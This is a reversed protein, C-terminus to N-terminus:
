ALGCFRVAGADSVRYDYLSGDFSVVVRNGNTIVELYFEGAKPCGMAGNPWTAEQVSAVVASSVDVGIRSELDAM